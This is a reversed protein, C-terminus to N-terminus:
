WNLVLSANLEVDRAKSLRYDDTALSIQGFRGQWGVGLQRTTYAAGWMNGYPTDAGYGIAARRIRDHLFGEVRLGRDQRQVLFSVTPKISVSFDMEESRGGSSPCSVNEDAAINVCGTTRAAVPFSLYSWLDRVEASVNYSLYQGGVSLDVSYGTGPEVDASFGEGLSGDTPFDLIKDQDFYYSLAVTAEDGQAQGSLSGFQYHDMRFVSIKPSISWDAVPIEYALYFGRASFADADLQLQYPEDNDTGAELQYYYESTGRSFTFDFLERRLYGVTVAQYRTALEYRADAYAYRGPRFGNDWGSAMDSVSVPESFALVQLSSSVEVAM